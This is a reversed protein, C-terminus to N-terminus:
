TYLVLLFMTVAEGGGGKKERCFFLIFVLSGSLFSINLCVPFSFFFSVSQWFKKVRRRKIRSTKGRTISYFFVIGSKKRKKLIRTQNSEDNSSSVVVVVVM